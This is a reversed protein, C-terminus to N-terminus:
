EANNLREIVNLIDQPTHVVYDAGNLIQERVTRFGWDVGIATIGANKAVLMDMGSDGVFVCEKPEVGLDSIVKLTLTPDPKAPYGEQKGCVIQFVDGVTKSVVTKAFEQAKNSVVALRVGSQILTELLQSIGQYECTQDAYHEHYHASFIELTKARIEPTRSDEPLAREILKPMGDGVFYKYKDTGHTPFGMKALAYNTSTALDFLSNVLTGDLDFLVAKIM